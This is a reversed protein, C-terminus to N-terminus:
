ACHCSVIPPREASRQGCSVRPLYLSVTTGQGPYSHVSVCGGSEDVFRRVMSLGLGTGRAAGKTTFFRDFMREKVERSMGTGTDSVAIVAYEGACGPPEDEGLSVGRTGITLRGGHPMADRANAALNLLVHEFADRDVTAEGVHAGLALSVDVKPGVMRELLPQIDAIVENLSVPERVPSEHRQPSHLQRVMTTARSTALQIEHVLDLLRERHGVENALAASSCVVVMLLNNLDHAVSAALYGVSEGRRLQSLEDLLRRRETVDRAVVVFGKGERRGELELQRDCGAADTLQVAITARGRASLESRFGTLDRAAAPEGLLAALDVGAFERAARNMLVTRGDDAVVVTAEFSDEFLSEYLKNDNMREM